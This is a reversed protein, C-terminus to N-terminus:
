HYFVRVSIPLDHYFNGDSVCMAKEKFFRLFELDCNMIRESFFRMEGKIMEFM